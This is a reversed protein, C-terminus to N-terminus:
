LETFRKKQRYLTEQMTNVQDFVKMYESAVRIRKLNTVKTDARVLGKHVQEVVEEQNLINVVSIGGLPGTKDPDVPTKLRKVEKVLFHACWEMGRELNLDLYVPVESDSCIVKVNATNTKSDVKTLRIEQIEFNNVIMTIIYIDLKFPNNYELIQINQYLKKLFHTPLFYAAKQQKWIFVM